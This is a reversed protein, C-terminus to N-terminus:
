PCVVNDGDADDVIGDPTADTDTAVVVRGTAAVILAKAHGAGRDDCLAFHGASNPLAFGQGGYRVRVADVLSVDVTANVPQGRRLITDGADVTGDSDVDIFSIWGESWTGTCASGNSSACVTVTRQQAIAESRAANLTGALGNSAVTLRNNLVLDQFGPGALTLLTVAVVLTVLMEVLTFGSARARTVVHDVM